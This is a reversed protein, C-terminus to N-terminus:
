LQTLGKWSYSSAQEYAPSKEVITYLDTTTPGCFQVTFGCCIHISLSPALSVFIIVTDTHQFFSM